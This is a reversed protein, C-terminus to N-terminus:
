MSSFNAFSTPIGPHLYVERMDAAKLLTSDGGDYGPASSYLFMDGVERGFEKDPSSDIFEQLSVQEYRAPNGTVKSWLRMYETWSCTTGEAM